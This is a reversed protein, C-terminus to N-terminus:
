KYIAGLLAQETVKVLKLDKVRSNCLPYILCSKSNQATQQSTNQAQVDQTERIDMNPEQTERINLAQMDGIDINQAQVERIIQTQTDKKTKEMQYSRKAEIIKKCTVSNAPPITSMHVLVYQKAEESWREFRVM